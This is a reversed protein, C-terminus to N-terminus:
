LPYTGGENPRKRSAERGKRAGTLQFAYDGDTAYRWSADIQAALSAILKMGLGDGRPKKEGDNAIRSDGGEGKKRLQRIWLSFRCEDSEFSVAIRVKGDDGEGYKAANTIVENAILGIAIAEDIDLRTGGRPSTVSVEVREPDFEAAINRALEAMYAGPDVEPAGDAAHLGDYVLAMSEIRSLLSTAMAQFEQNESRRRMLRVIGRINNLNNKVRHHLEKYLLERQALADRLERETAERRHTEANMLKYYDGLFGFAAGVGMGSLQAVVLNAPAYEPHGLMGFVLLNAPLGLGGAILGGWFGFSVAAILIPFIVLYNAAVELYIGSGLAAGAYIAVSAALSAFRKRVFLVNHIRLLRINLLRFNDVKRAKKDKRAEHISPTAM